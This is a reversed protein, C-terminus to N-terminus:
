ADHYSCTLHRPAREVRDLARGVLGFREDLLAPPELGLPVVALQDALGVDDVVFVVVPQAPEAVDIAVELAVALGRVDIQVQVVEILRARQDAAVLM